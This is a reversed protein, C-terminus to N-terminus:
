GCEAMEAKLLAARERGREVSVSPVAMMIQQVALIGGEGDHMDDSRGKSSFSSYSGSERVKGNLWLWNDRPSDLVTGFSNKGSPLKKTM